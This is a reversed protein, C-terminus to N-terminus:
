PLLKVVLTVLFVIAGAWFLLDARIWKNKFPICVSRYPWPRFCIFGLCTAIVTIAGHAGVEILWLLTVQVGAYDRLVGLLIVVLGLVWFLIVLRKFKKM